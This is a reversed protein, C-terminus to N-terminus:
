FISYIFSSSIAVTITSSYFFMSFLIFLYLISVILQRDKIFYIFIGKKTNYKSDISLQYNSSNEWRDRKLNFISALIKLIFFFIYIIFSLIVFIYNKFVNISKMNLTDSKNWRKFYYSSTEDM